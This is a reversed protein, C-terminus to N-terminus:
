ILPSSRKQNPQACSTAPSWAAAWSLQRCARLSSCDKEIFLRFIREQHVIERQDIHTETVFGSCEFKDLLGYGRIRDLFIGKLDWISRTRARTAACIPSGSWAM